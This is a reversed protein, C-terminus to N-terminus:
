NKAFVFPGTVLKGTVTKTSNESLDNHKNNYIM